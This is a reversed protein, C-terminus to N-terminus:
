VLNFNFQTPLHQKEHLFLQRALLIKNESTFQSLIQKGRAINLYIM